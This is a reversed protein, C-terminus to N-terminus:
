IYSYGDAGTSPSSRIRRNVEGLMQVADKRTLHANIDEVELSMAAELETKAGRYDGLKVMCRGLEVHHILRAPALDTARQYSEAAAKYSGDLLATGYMMRILTRVVCNIGAMEYHWRGNLHHAIDDNPNCELALSAETQADKALKVKTKNDSYLALRGMSVCAAIHGISNKPDVEIAKQALELARKNAEAIEAVPYNPTYSLDSWTKSVRALLVPNTPDLKLAEEYVARAKLIDLEAELKTGEALLQRAKGKLGGSGTRSRSSSENTKSRWFFGHHHGQKGMHDTIQTGVRTMGAATLGLALGIFTALEHTGKDKWPPRFVHPSLFVAVGGKLAKKGHDMLRVAHRHPGVMALPLPGNKSDTKSM